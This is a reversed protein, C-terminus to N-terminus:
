RADSIEPLQLHELLRNLKKEIERNQKNNLEISTSVDDIKRHLENLKEHVAESISNGINSISSNTSEVCGPAHSAGKLFESNSDNNQDDNSIDKTKKIWDEPLDMAEKLLWHLDQLGTYYTFRQHINISPMNKAMAIELSGNYYGFKKSDTADNAYIFGDEDVIGGKSLFDVVKCTMETSLGLPGRFPIDYSRQSILVIYDKLHSTPLMTDQVTARFLKDELPVYGFEIKSIIQENLVGILLIIIADAVLYIPSLYSEEKNSNTWTNSIPLGKIQDYYYHTFKLATKHSVTNLLHGVLPFLNVADGVATIFNRFKATSKDNSASLYPGTAAKSSIFIEELKTQIHNYFLKLKSRNITYRKKLVNICSHCLQKVKDVPIQDGSIGIAIWDDKIKQEVVNEVEDGRHIDNHTIEIDPYESLLVDDIFKNHQMPSKDNSLNGGDIEDYGPYTDNRLQNLETKLDIEASLLAQNQSDIDKRSRQYKNKLAELCVNFFEDNTFKSPEQQLEQGTVTKWLSKLYTEDNENVSSEAM